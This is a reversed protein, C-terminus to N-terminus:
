RFLLVTLKQAQSNTARDGRISHHATHFAPFATPDDTLVDTGSQFEFALLATAGGFNCLLGPEGGCMDGENTRAVSRDAGVEGTGHGFKPADVKRGELLERELGM